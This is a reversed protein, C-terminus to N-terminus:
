NWARYDSHGARFESKPLLRSRLKITAIDLITLVALKSRFGSFFLGDIIPFFVAPRNVELSFLQARAYPANNTAGGGLILFTFIGLMMAKISEIRRM